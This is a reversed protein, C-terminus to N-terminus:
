YVPGTHSKPIFSWKTGTPFGAGGLGRLNSRKVEELITAPEMPRAKTWAQYGGAERYDRVAHAGSRGFHRTLLGEDSMRPGRPDRRGEGADPQARLSRRGADDTRGRLCLSV